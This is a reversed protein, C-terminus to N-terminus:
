GRRRAAAVRCRLRDQFGVPWSFPDRCRSVSTAPVEDLECGQPPGLALAAFELSALQRGTPGRLLSWRPRSIGAASRASSSCTSANRRPRPALVTGHPRKERNTGFPAATATIVACSRTACALLPSTRLTNSGFIMFRRCRARYGWSTTRQRGGKRRPWRRTVYCLGDGGEDVPVLLSASKPFPHGLACAADIWTSAPDQGLRSQKKPSPIPTAITRAHRRLERNLEAVIDQLREPLAPADRDLQGSRATGRTPIARGPLSRQGVAEELPRRFPRLGEPRAVDLPLELQAPRM